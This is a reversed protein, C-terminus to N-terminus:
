IQCLLNTAVTAIFISHVRIWKKPSTKAAKAESLFHIQEKEFKM